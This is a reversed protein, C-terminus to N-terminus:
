RETVNGWKTILQSAVVSEHSVVGTAVTVSLLLKVATSSNSTFYYQHFNASFLVSIIAIACMIFCFIGCFVILCVVLV